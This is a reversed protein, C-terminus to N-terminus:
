NRILSFSISAVWCIYAFNVLMNDFLWLSQARRVNLWLGMSSPDDDTGDNGDDSLNFCARLNDKSVLGEELIFRTGQVAIDNQGAICIIM